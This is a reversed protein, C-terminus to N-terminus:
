KGVLETIVGELIKVVDDVNSVFPSHGCALAPRRSEPINSWALVKEQIDPLVCQDNTCKIYWCRDEYAPDQWAAYELPTMHPVQSQKGLKKVLDAAITPEVDNYFTGLPDPM